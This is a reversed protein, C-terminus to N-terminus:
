HSASCQTVAKRRAASGYHVRQQMGQLSHEVLFLQSNLQSKSGPRVNGAAENPPSRKCGSHKHAKRHGTRPLRFAQAGLHFHLSPRPPRMGLKSSTSASVRPKLLSLSALTQALLFSSSLGHGQSTPSTHQNRNTAAAMSQSRKTARALGSNLDVGQLNRLLQALLHACISRRHRAGSLSGAARKPRVATQDSPLPKPEFKDSLAWSSILCSM